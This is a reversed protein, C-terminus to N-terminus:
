PSLKFGIVLIDDTQEVNKMWHEIHFDLIKQQEDMPKLHIELLIEKLQKIMFKRGREGGFQDQYGDTFTYFYTATDAYSVEYNTFKKEVKSMQHGGISQMDGKLHFLENNQIYILPNKAGAWEVVKNRKDITCLSMDMGDQNETQDQKLATRVFKNKLDLIDSPKTIGQNIITTLIESGIMSMFAGPVGHGTCDVATYIIKDNRTAFWYFDGSVIDRPKFLIFNEELSQNIKERLPLMAEQIRKAYTISATINKNKDQIIKNTESLKDRQAEIQKNKEGLETNRASLEDRQAEIEDRQAMIEEKQQELESNKITIEITREKVLQELHEKQKRLRRVSLRVIGWILFITLIVYIIRAWYTQYWPPLIVFTYTAEESEIEYINKAKVHFVYEKAALNSYEKFNKSKWDSWGNDNGELYFKFQVEEPADFFPSSFSFRIDNFEFPIQYVQHNMQNLSVHGSTDFYSGNYILSDNLIFEVKRILAFYKQNYDKKLTADFHVMGKDTGIIVNGDALPTISYINNKLKYFPTKDLVYTQNPQRILQGMEYVEEVNQKTKRRQKFWINGYKDEKFLTIKVGTGIIDNLEKERFFKDNQKDYAYLGDDTGVIINNKFKFIYNNGNILGKNENYPIATVSDFLSNLKLKYIGKTKDAFWINNDEDIEIFRCKEEFGSIKKKFVWKGSLKEQNKKGFLRKKAQFELLIMGKNTGAIAIDNRGSVQLFKWVPDTTKLDLNTAKNKDILSIGKNNALMLHGNLTDIDFVSLPEGLQNFVETGSLHNETKNWNRYFLGFNSGIYLFKDTALAAYTTSNLNYNKDFISLPLSTMVYSIGNDTCLWINQKSDQYLNIIQGSQLGTSIGIHNLVEGKNNIVILGDSFLGFAYNGDSLQIASVIKQSKLYSDIPTSFEEVGKSEFTFLGNAMTVFLIKDKFPLVARLSFKSFKEGGKLLVTKGNVYECLGYEEIRAFIRGKYEFVQKLNKIHSTKLQGKSYEFLIDDGTFYVVDGVIFIRNIDRFKKDKENTINGILSRYKLSGVSDPALYGFEGSSGVFVRGKDNIALSRVLLSNVTIDILKWNQGDFELVGSTNGFYVVGRQDEVCSWNQKAAKYQESSYNILYPLGLNKVQASLQFSTIIVVLFALKKMRSTDFIVINKETSKM